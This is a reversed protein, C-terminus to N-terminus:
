DEETESEVAHHGFHRAQQTEGALEQDTGQDPVAVIGKRSLVVFQNGPV